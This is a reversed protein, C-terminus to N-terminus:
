TSSLDICFLNSLRAYVFVSNNHTSEFISNHSDILTSVGNPAVKVNWLARVSENLSALVFEKHFESQVFIGDIQLFLM